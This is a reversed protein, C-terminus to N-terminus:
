VKYGLASCPLIRFRLNGYSELHFAFVLLTKFTLSSSYSWVGNYIFIKIPCYIYSIQICQLKGFTCCCYDVFQCSLYMHITTLLPRHLIILLPCCLIFHMLSVKLELFRKVVGNQSWHLNNGREAICLLTGFGLTCSYGEKCFWTGWTFSFRAARPLEAKM